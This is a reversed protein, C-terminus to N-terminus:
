PGMDSIVGSGVDWSVTDEHACTHLWVNISYQVFLIFVWFVDTYIDIDIYALVVCM